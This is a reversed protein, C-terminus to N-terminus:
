LKEFYEGDQNMLIIKIYKKKLESYLKNVILESKEHSSLELNIVYRIKINYKCLVEEIEEQYYDKDVETGSYNIWVSAEKNQITFDGIDNNYGYFSKIIGALDKKEIFEELFIQYSRSM